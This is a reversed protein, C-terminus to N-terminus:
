RSLAVVVDCGDPPVDLVNFALKISATIAFIPQFRSPCQLFTNEEPGCVNNIAGTFRQREGPVVLVAMCIDM